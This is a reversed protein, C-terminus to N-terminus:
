ILLVTNLLPGIQRLISNGAKLNPYAGYNLLIRVAVANGNACVEHLLYNYSHVGSNYRVIQDNIFGSYLRLAMLIIYNNGRRDEAIRNVNDFTVQRDNRMINELEVTERLRIM